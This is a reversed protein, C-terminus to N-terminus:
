SCDQIYVNLECSRTKNLLIGGGRSLLNGAVVDGVKINCGSLPEFWCQYGDELDLCVM